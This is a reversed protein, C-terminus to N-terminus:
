GNNYRLKRQKEGNHKMAIVILIEVPLSAARHRMATGYNNTGWCFTISVGVVIMLLFILLMRDSKSYFRILLFSKITLYFIYWRLISDFLMAMLTEISYIQWPMPANLYYFFRIPLQLIANTINQPPSLYNSNGLESNAIKDVADNLSNIDGFKLTIIEWLPSNIVLFTIISFILFRIPTVKFRLKKKNFFAIAIVYCILVGIYGSHFLCTILAFLMALLMNYLYNSKVYKVFYYVSIILFLEVPMERMFDTAYEISVPYLYFIFGSLISIKKNSTIEFSTIYIFYFIMESFIFNIIYMFRENIGYIYYIIGILKEYLAFDCFFIDLINSSSNAITIGRAHFTVSDLGKFPFYASPDNIRYLLISLRVLFIIIYLILFVYKSHNFVLINHKLIFCLMLSGLLYFIIDSKFLFALIISIFIIICVQLIIILKNREVKVNIDRYLEYIYIKVM